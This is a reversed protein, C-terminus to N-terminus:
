QERMVCRNEEEKNHYTGWMPYRRITAADAPATERKRLIQVQVLGLRGVQRESVRCPLTRLPNGSARRHALIATPSLPPSM